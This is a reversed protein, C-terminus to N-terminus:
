AMLREAVTVKDWNKPGPAQYSGSRTLVLGLGRHIEAQFPGWPIREGDISIYGSPSRPIIRFASIKRYKVLPDDFFHGGEVSLMMRITELPSVDGDITVLDMLGDNILAASFIETDLAVYAM